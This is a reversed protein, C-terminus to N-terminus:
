EYSTTCCGWYARITRLDQCTSICIDDIEDNKNVCTSLDFGDFLLETCYKGNVDSCACDAERLEEALDEDGTCSYFREFDDFCRGCVLVYVDSLYRARGETTYINYQDALLDIRDECDAIISDCSSHWRKPFVEKHIIHWTPNRFASALSIVFLLVAAFKIM